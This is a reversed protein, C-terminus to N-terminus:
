ITKVSTLGQKDAANNIEQLFFSLTTVPYMWPESFQKKNTSIDNLSKLEQHYKLIQEDTIQKNFYILVDLLKEIMGGSLNLNVIADKNITKIDPLKEEM